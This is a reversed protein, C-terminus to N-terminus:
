PGTDPGGAKVSLSDCTSRQNPARRYDRPMKWCRMRALTDEVRARVTRHVSNLEEKREPLDTGDRPKRYPM